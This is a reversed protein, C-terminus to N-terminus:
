ALLACNKDLTNMLICVFESNAQMLTDVIWMWYKSFCSLHGQGYQSATSLPVQLTSLQKHQCSLLHDNILKVNQEYDKKMCMM